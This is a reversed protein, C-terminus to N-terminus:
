KKFRSYIKNFDSDKYIIVFRDKYKLGQIISGSFFGLLIPNYIKLILLIILVILCYIWHHMHIRYGCILPRISKKVKDGAFKGSFVNCFTFGIILSIIFLIIFLYDM